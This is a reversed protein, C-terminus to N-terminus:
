PLGGAAHGDRGAGDARVQLLRGAPLTPLPPPRAAPRATRTLVHLACARTIRSRSRMRARACAHSLLVCLEGAGAERSESRTWRSVSGTYAATLEAVDAKSLVVGCNSLARVAQSPEIRKLGQKDFDRLFDHVRRTKCAVVLREMLDTSLTAPPLGEFAVDDVRAALTATASM